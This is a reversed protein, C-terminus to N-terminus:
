NTSDGILSVNFHLFHSRSKKHEVFKMAIYVKCEKLFMTKFAYLDNAVMKYKTQPFNRKTMFEFYSV